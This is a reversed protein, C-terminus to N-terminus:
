IVCQKPKTCSTKVVFCIIVTYRRLKRVLESAVVFSVNMCYLSHKVCLQWSSSVATDWVLTGSDPNSADEQQHTWWIEMTTIYLNKPGSVHHQINCSRNQSTEMTVESRPPREMFRLGTFLVTSLRTSLFLFISLKLSLVEVRVLLNKPWMPSLLFWAWVGYSGWMRWFYLSPTANHTWETQNNLFGGFHFIICADSHTDGHAISEVSFQM